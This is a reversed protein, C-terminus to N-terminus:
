LSSALLEEIKFCIRMRNDGSHATVSLCSDREFFTDFTRLYKGSQSISSQTVMQTQQSQKGSGKRNLKPNKDNKKSAPTASM